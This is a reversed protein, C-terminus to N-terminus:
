GGDPIPHTMFYRRGPRMGRLRRDELLTELRACADLSNIGGPRKLIDSFDVATMASLLVLEEVIRDRTDVASGLRGVIRTALGRADLRGGELVADGPGVGAAPLAAGAELVTRRYGALDRKKSFLEDFSMNAFDPMDGDEDDDDVDGYKDSEKAGLCILGREPELLFSLKWAIGRRIDDDEAAEYLDILRGAFSPNCSFMLMNAIYGRTPDAAAQFSAAIREIVTWSAAMGAFKTAVGWFLAHRSARLLPEIRDTGSFDGESARHVVDALSEWPETSHRYTSIEAASLPPEFIFSHIFNKLDRM